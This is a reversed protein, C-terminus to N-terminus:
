AAAGVFGANLDIKEAQRVQLSVRADPDDFVVVLEIRETGSMADRVHRVEVTGVAGTDTEVNALLRNESSTLPIIM